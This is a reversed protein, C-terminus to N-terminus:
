HKYQHHYNNDRKESRWAVLVPLDGLLQVTLQQEDELPDDQRGMRRAVHLKDHEVNAAELLYENVSRTEM